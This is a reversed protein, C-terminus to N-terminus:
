SLKILKLGKEILLNCDEKDIYCTNVLPVDLRTVLGGRKVYHTIVHVENGIHGVDVSCFEEFESETEISLGYYENYPPLLMLSKIFISNGKPSGTFRCVENIVNDANFKTLKNGIIYGTARGTKGIINLVAMDNGKKSKAFEVDSIFGFINIEEDYKGMDSIPICGYKIDDGYVRLPKYSLIIGAHRIENKINGKIDIFSQDFVISSIKKVMNEYSNEKIEPLKLDSRMYGFEDFAGVEMLIEYQKKPFMRCGTESVILNRILFNQVSVYAAEKRKECIGNYLGKAADGVSNLGKFGYRINNDEVTFEFYSKNIDVQLIDINYYNCDEVLPEFDKQDENNFMSCLFEPTYYYKLYATQYSVLAYVAAHSKNFAYRAFEVLEEFLENAIEASIGNAVCGAIGRESDGNIFVLREKELVDTKKKSMARRILDAGGLSYGALKQFIRMVQEQYIVAGYTDKLIEELEPTKYTLPKRGHKVEIIDELYQMPGPRYAAVLLILDEFSTPRFERLMSKMGDSEFQFVSNTLGKSYIESFVEEDFPIRNIDVSLNRYQLVLNLCDSIVDLTNLGLIDMKLLGKEEARVMNCQASWVNTDTNWALPIYDNVDNNDSIIIGGAHVSTANVRGEILKAREWLLRTEKNKNILPLLEAECKCLTMGPDEPIADALPYVYGAKYEKIKNKKEKDNHICEYLQSSRDRGVMKISGKAAYTIETAISCVANEGYTEKLYRIIVPRLSARADIDIDPMTIREPNLFREFLLNYKLPDINTIGLMYCVLSGAASGRPGVGVGCVFNHEKVYDRIGEFGYENLLREVDKKPIGELVRLMNCYDQVIMHYDVVGMEKITKIEHRLRKEYDSNWLGIKIRRKREMELMEDFSHETKVSPYHKEDPFEVKCADLIGVNGIAEKVVDEPLIECLSAALEDDSKIYLTRDADSTTQAKSFYNYRVIRRAEACEDTGYTIHADNSAIVPIDLQRALKLLKPMVYAEEEMGHYQLEVYLNVFISKLHKLHKIADRHLKSDTYYRTNSIEMESKCYKDYGEKKGKVRQKATNMKETLADVLTKLEKDYKEGIAKNELMERYENEIKELEAAGEFNIPNYETEYKLKKIRSEHKEIKKIYTTLTYKHTKKAKEKLETICKQYDLVQKEYEKYSEYDDKCRKLIDRQEDLSKEIRMNALLTYPVIGQICATTAIIDPNDKFFTELIDKTMIPYSVKKNKSVELHRNAERMAHSIDTYGKYNKAVLILHHRNETYAEVGPITNIGYKKGATMFPEIGLMTGHDTLAVNKGGMERVRMVIEEPTQVSDNLSYMSHVHMVDNM